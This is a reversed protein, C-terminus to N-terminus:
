RVRFLGVSAANSAHLRAREPFVTSASVSVCQSIEALHKNMAEISVTPMVLAAGTGRAPCIAGFLYAWTFRRDRKIRPRPGRRAWIRTLTGQQGVRAEDRFWIEVPRRALQPPIAARSTKKFAEQAELDTQPHMPRVSISSFDLKKLLKGVSREHLHINFKAAIRDRLAACRWRVGGDTKPDPGDEVWKAVESLQAEALRPQRGPRPRDALGALGDANYRHVWDRLTQRDMGGAEAALLRPHEDLVMAIALIRRAQKADATRAAEARLQSISLDQRTIEIASIRVAGRILSM